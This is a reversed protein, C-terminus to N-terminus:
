SLTVRSAEILDGSSDYAPFKKLTFTSLAEGANAMNDQYDTVILPCQWGNSGSATDTLYQALIPTNSNWAALLKTFTAHDVRSTRFGLTIEFNPMGGSDMQYDSERSSGDADSKAGGFSLDVAKKVETWSPTAPIDSGDAWTSEYRFVGDHGRM